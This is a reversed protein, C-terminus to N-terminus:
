ASLSNLRCLLIASKTGAFIRSERRFLVRYDGRVHFERIVEAFHELLEALGDVLRDRAGPAHMFGNLANAVLAVVEVHNEIRLDAHVLAFAAAARPSDQRGALGLLDLSRALARREADVELIEAEEFGQPDIGGAFDADAFRGGPPHGFGRLGRPAM